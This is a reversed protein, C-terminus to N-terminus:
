HLIMLVQFLTWVGVITVLATGFVEVAEEMNMAVM